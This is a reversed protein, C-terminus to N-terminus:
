DLEGFMEITGRLADAFADIEDITNYVYLSARASGAAGLIRHLPRLASQM